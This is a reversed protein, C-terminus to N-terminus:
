GGQGDTDGSDGYGMAEMAEGVVYFSGTILICDEPDALDRATRLADDVKESVINQRWLASTRWALEEAPLARANGAHPLLAM